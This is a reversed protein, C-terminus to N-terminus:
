LSEITPVEDKPLVRNEIEKQVNKIIEFAEEINVVYNQIFWTLAEEKLVFTLNEDIMRREILPSVNKNKDKDFEPNGFRDLKNYERLNQFTSKSQLVLEKTKYNYFGSQYVAESSIPLLNFTKLGEVESMNAYYQM